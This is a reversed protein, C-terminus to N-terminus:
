AIGRKKLDAIKERSYGLISGLLEDTHEGMMPTPRFTEGPTESLKIANGSIRQKGATPHDQVPVMNQALIDPDSLARDLTNIPACPVGRAVLAEIWEAANKRLFYSELISIMENRNQLRMEASVFRPDKELEPAGLAGCVGAWFKDEPASVIFYEDKAKFAQHPTITPHGSGFPMPVKGTVFYAVAHYSLLAIQCNLMSISVKQGKGTRQKYIYAAMIGHAGFLGGALDGISLGIRVPPRGPEGTLSMAGGMAQAIIDYAPRDRYPGTSSFGTISCCIIGPNIKSVTEYDAGIKEMVGPRFNDAIVDSKKVLEYFIAKGEEKRLALSLSKKNRDNAIAYYHVGGPRPGAGLTPDGGSGPQEIKIVEAGLDALIMTCYPGAFARTLDLVRMGTLAGEKQEEPHM